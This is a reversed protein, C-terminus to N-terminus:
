CHQQGRPQSRQGRLTHTAPRDTLWAWRPRPESREPRRGRDQEEESLRFVPPAGLSAQGVAPEPTAARESTVPRPPSSRQHNAAEGGAAGTRVAENTGKLQHTGDFLALHGVAPQGDQELRGLFSQILPPGHRHVAAPASDLVPGPRSAM